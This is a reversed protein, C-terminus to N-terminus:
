FVIDPIMVPVENEFRDESYNNAVTAGRDWFWIDQDPGYFKRWNNQTALQVARKFISLDYDVKKLCENIHEAIHFLKVQKYVRSCHYWEVLLEKIDDSFELSQIYKLAKEPDYSNGPTGCVQPVACIYRSLNMSDKNGHVNFSDETYKVYNSSKASKDAVYLIDNNVVNSSCKKGIISHPYYKISHRNFKLIRSSLKKVPMRYSYKRGKIVKDKKKEGNCRAVVEAIYELEEKEEEEAINKDRAKVVRNTVAEIDILYCNGRGHNPAQSIYGKECLATLSLRIDRDKWNPKRLQVYKVTVELPENNKMKVKKYAALDILYSLLSEERMSLDETDFLPIYRYKHSDLLYKKLSM